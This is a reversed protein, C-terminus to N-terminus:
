IYIKTGFLPGGACILNGGGDLTLGMPPPDPHSFSTTITSTIGSHIYISCSDFDASILNESM